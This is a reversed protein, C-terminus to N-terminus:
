TTSYYLVIPVLVKSNEKPFIQRLGESDKILQEWEREIESVVESNGVMDRLVEDTFLRRM